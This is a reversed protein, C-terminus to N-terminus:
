WDVDGRWDLWGLVAWVIFGLATFANAVVLSAGFALAVIAAAEAVVGLWLLVWGSM